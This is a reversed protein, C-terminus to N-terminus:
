KIAVCTEYKLVRCFYETGEENKWLHKKKYFRGKFKFVPNDQDYDLDFPNVTKENYTDLILFLSDMPIQNEKSLYNEYLEINKITAWQPCSCMMGYYKLEIEVIEEELENEILNSYRSNNNEIKTEQCSFLIILILM